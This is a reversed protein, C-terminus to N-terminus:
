AESGEETLLCLLYVGEGSVWCLVTKGEDEASLRLSEVRGRAETEWEGFSVTGRAASTLVGPRLSDRKERLFLEAMQYFPDKTM